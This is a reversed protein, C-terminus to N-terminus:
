KTTKPKRKQKIKNVISIKTEDVSASLVENTLQDIVAGMGSEIFQKTQVELRESIDQKAIEAMKQKAENSVRSMPVSALPDSDENLKIKTIPFSNVPISESEPPFGDKKIQEAKMLVDVLDNTGKQSNHPKIGALTQFKDKMEQAEKLEDKDILGGDTSTVYEKLELGAWVLLMLGGVFGLINLITNAATLAPFIGYTVLLFITIFTVIQKQYKKLKNM